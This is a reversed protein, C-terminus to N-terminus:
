QIVEHVRLDFNRSYKYVQETSLRQSRLIVLLKSFIM